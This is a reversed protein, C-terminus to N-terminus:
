SFRSCHFTGTRVRDRSGYGYKKQYDPSKTYRDYYGGNYNYGMGYSGTGLGAYVQQNYKNFPSKRRVKKGIDTSKTMPNSNNSVGSEILVNYLEPISDCILVM